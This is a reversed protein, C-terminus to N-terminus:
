TKKSKAKKYMLAADKLTIEQYIKMKDNQMMYAQELEDSDFIFLDLTIKTLTGVIKGQDKEEKISEEDPADLGEEPFPVSM